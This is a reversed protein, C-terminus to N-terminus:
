DESIEEEKLEQEANLGSGIAERLWLGFLNRVQLNNRIEVCKEVNHPDEDVLEQTFKDLDRDIRDFIYRGFHSREFSEAEIGLRARIIRFQEQTVETPKDAM